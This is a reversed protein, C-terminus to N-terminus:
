ESKSIIKAVLLGNYFNIQVNQGVNIKEFPLSNKQEDCVFSYGRKLVATPSIKDLLNIKNQLCLKKNELNIKVKDILNKYNCKIIEKYYDISDFIKQKLIIKANHLDDRVINLDPVIMEVAASPTPARLDSVFDSLTYDTEHGVASVIPIKSNYIGRVVIEENFAWLDEISGGGRGLIIVDFNKYKNAKEIAHVIDKPADKGQVLTQILILQVLKNRKASVKIIDHIAAGTDSTIVAIKQPFKPINKKHEADFLGESALKNKLKEFANFLDGKGLPQIYELCLQYQGSKEYLTIRGYVLVNMGDYIDFSITSAFQRFVVCNIAATNDKLTFYMNGNSHYKFNSVEAELLIDSLILDDEILNKIYKNVQSVSLVNNM